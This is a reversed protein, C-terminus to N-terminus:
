LLLIALLALILGPLALWIAMRLLRYKRSCITSIDFCHRLQAITLNSSSYSAIERIYDEGSNRKSVEKFFIIGDGSVPGLRPAIVAFAFAASLLLTILMGAVISFKITLAPDLVLAQVEDKSAMYGLVASILGLCVGAKADAFEIYHRVYDEHFSAFEAHHAELGTAAFLQGSAHSVSSAEFPGEPNMGGPMKSGSDADPAQTNM